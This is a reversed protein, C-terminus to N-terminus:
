VSQDPINFRWSFTGDFVLIAAQTGGLAFTMLRSFEKFGKNNIIGNPVYELLVYILLSKEYFHM